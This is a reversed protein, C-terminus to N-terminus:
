LLSMSALSFCMSASTSRVDADMDDNDADIHRDDAEIVIIVADMDNMAVDIETLVMGVHSGDADRNFTMAGWHSGNVGIINAIAVANPIERVSGCSEKERVKNTTEWKDRTASNEGHVERSKIAEGFALDRGDHLPVKPM